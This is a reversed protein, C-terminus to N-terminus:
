HAFDPVVSKAAVVITTFVREGAHVVPTPDLRDGIAAIPGPITMGLLHRPEDVKANDPGPGSAIPVDAPPVPASEPLPPAPLSPAPLPTPDAVAVTVPPPAPVDADARRPQLPPPPHLAAIRAAQPHKVAAARPRQSPPKVVAATDAPKRTAGDERPPGVVAGHAAEVRKSPQEAGSPAANEEAAPRPDVIDQKTVFHGHYASLLVGAIVTACASPLVELIFKSLSRLM